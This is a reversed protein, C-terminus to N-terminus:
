CRLVNSLVSPDCDKWVISPVGLICSMGHM